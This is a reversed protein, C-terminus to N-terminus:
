RAADLVARRAAPHAPPHDGLGQRRSLRARRPGDGLGPDQLRDRADRRAEVRARDPVGRIGPRVRTRRDSGAPQLGREFVRVRRGAHVPARIAARAAVYEERGVPEYDTPSFDSELGSSHTLLHHLTIGAKDAPVGDLDQRLDSRWGGAQGADRADPHRRRHVAEHDIGPQLRQATTLPIGRARDAQGYGKLLVIDKGRVVAAGGSFGIRELRGLYEDLRRGTEGAVVPANTTPPQAAASVAISLGLVALATLKLMPM